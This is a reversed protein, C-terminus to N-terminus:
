FILVFSYYIRFLFVMFCGLVNFIVCLMFLSESIFLIKKQSRRFSSPVREPFMPVIGLTSKFFLSGSRSSGFGSETRLIKRIRRSHRGVPALVWAVLRGSRGKNKSFPDSPKQHGFKTRVKKGENSIWIKWSM